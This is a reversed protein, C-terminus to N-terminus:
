GPTSARAARACEGQLEAVTMCDGTYPHVTGRQRPNLGENLFFKVIDVHLRHSAHLLPHCTDERGFGSAAARMSPRWLEM